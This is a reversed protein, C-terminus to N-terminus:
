KHPALDLLIRILQIASFFAEPKVDDLLIRNEHMVYLGRDGIFINEVIEADRDAGLCIVHIVKWILIVVEKKDCIAVSNESNQISM